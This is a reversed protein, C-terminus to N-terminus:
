DLNEKVFELIEKVYSSFYKDKGYKKELTILLNNSIHKLYTNGLHLESMTYSLAQLIDAFKVIKNELIEDKGEGYESYTNLIMEAIHMNWQFHSELEERLILNWVEEFKVRLDQSKYKLPTVIDGTFIEEIDHYLAYKLVKYRDINIEHKYEIDEAISDALVSVYYSHEALNEKNLVKTGSYRIVDSMRDFFWELFQVSINDNKKM